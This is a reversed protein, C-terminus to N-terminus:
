PAPSIKILKGEQNFSLISIPKNIDGVVYKM